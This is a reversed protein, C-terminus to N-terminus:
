SRHGVRAFGMHTGRIAFEETLTALLLSYPHRFPCKNVPSHFDGTQSTAVRLMLLGWPHSSHPEIQLLASQLLPYQPIKHAACRM